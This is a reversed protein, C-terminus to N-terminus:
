RAILTRIRIWIIKSSFGGGRTYCTKHLVILHIPAITKSKRLWVSMCVSLCRDCYKNQTYGECEEGLAVTIIIFDHTLFSYCTFNIM